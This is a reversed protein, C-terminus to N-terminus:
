DKQIPKDELLIVAEIPEEFKTKQLPETIFVLGYNLPFLLFCIMFSITYLKRNYKITSKTFKFRCMFILILTIASVGLINSISDFFEASRTPVFWQRYEDLTGILILSLWLIILREILQRKSLIIILIGITLTLASYFLFHLIKDDGITLYFPV